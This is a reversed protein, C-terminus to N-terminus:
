YYFCSIPDTPADVALRDASDLLVESGTPDVVIGAVVWEMLQDLLEAPWQLFAHTPWDLPEVSVCFIAFEVGVQVVLGLAHILCHDFVALEVGMLILQFVYRNPVAYLLLVPLPHCFPTVELAIHKVAHEPVLVVLCGANLLQVDEVVM